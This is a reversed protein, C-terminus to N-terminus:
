GGQIDPAPIGGAGIRTAFSPLVSIFVASRLNAAVAACPGRQQDSGLM